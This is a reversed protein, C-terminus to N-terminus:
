TGLVPTTFPLFTIAKSGNMAVYHGPIWHYGTLTRLSLRSTEGRVVTLITCGFLGGCRIMEGDRLARALRPGIKEFVWSVKGLFESKRRCMKGVKGVYACLCITTGRCGVRPGFACIKAFLLRPATTFPKRVVLLYLRAPDVSLLRRAQFQASSGTDALIHM